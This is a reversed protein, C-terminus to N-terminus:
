VGKSRVLDTMWAIPRVVTHLKFEDIRGDFTVDNATRNGITLTQGAMTAKTGTAADQASYAYESVAGSVGKYLHIKRDGADAYTLFIWQWIAAALGTTTTSLADTGAAVKMTIANLSGSFQLRNVTNAHSFFAGVNGEGANDPRVLMAITFTAYEVGASTIRSTLGDLDFAENAGLAGTQGLVTTGAITGNLAAGASGSNVAVTGTTERFRLWLPMTADAVYQALFDAYSLDDFSEGAARSPALRNQVPNQVRPPTLTLLPM